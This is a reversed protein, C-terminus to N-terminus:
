KRKPYIFQGSVGCYAQIDIRRKGDASFNRKILFLATIETGHHPKRGAIHHQQKVAYVALKGRFDDAEAFFRPSRGNNGTGTRKRRRGVDPQQKCRDFLIAGIEDYFFRGFEAGSFDNRHNGPM